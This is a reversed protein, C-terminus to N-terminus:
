STSCARGSWAPFRRLSRCTLSNDKAPKNQSAVPGDISGARGSYGGTMDAYSYGWGAPAKGPHRMQLTYGSLAQLTPGM